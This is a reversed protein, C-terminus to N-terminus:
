QITLNRVRRTIDALDISLVLLRNHDADRQALNIERLVNHQRELASNLLMSNMLQRSQTDTRRLQPRSIMQLLSDSLYAQSHTQTRPQEQQQDGMIGDIYTRAVEQKKVINGIQYRCLPCRSDNKLWKKLCKNHFGHNCKTKIGDTNIEDMCICCDDNFTEKGNEPVIPEVNYQEPIKGRPFDTAIYQKNRLRELRERLEGVTPASIKASYSRLENQLEKKNMNWVSINNTISAMKIYLQSEIKFVIRYNFILKITITWTAM